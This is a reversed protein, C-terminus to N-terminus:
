ELTKLVNDVYLEAVDIGIGDIAGRFGGFASVEFIVPGNKTEAVDVTTYAMDFVGQARCALQVIEDSPEAPAYVGGSHISTNWADKEAVRAYAGLYCGDLFILGMDRGGLDLKKQIYMVQNDSKFKEVAKRVIARGDTKRIIRMGRAKSSFLPKFIAIGFDDVTTIADEINEMIRTEPMPIGAQNLSVTCSLRDILRQIKKPRSFIKVGANEAIKLLELRDLMHPSYQHSIKKVILADMLCLNQGKYSLEQTSLDLKVLSMDIVLHFGTKEAVAKALIETSWKGPLGVIGIKLNPQM